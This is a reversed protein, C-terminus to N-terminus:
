KNRIYHLLFPIVSRVQIDDSEAFCINRAIGLDPILRVVLSFEGGLKKRLDNFSVSNRGDMYLFSVVGDKCPLRFTDMDKGRLQHLDIVHDTSAKSKEIFYKLLEGSNLSDVIRATYKLKPIFDEEEDEETVEESPTVVPTERENIEVSNGKEDKLEIRIHVCLENDTISNITCKTRKELVNLLNSIRDVRFAVTKDLDVFSGIVERFTDMFDKKYFVDHVVDDADPKLYFFVEPSFTTFVLNNPRGPDYVVFKTRKKFISFLYIKLLSIKKKDIEKYLNAKPDIIM